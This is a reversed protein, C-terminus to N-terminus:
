RPGCAGRRAADEGEDLLRDVELWVRRVVGGHCDGQPEPSEAIGMIGRCMHLLDAIAGNRPEFAHALALQTHARGYAMDDFSRRGKAYFYRALGSGPADIPAAPAWTAALCLAFVLHVALGRSPMGPTYERATV